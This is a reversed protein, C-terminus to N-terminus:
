QKNRVFRFGLYDNQVTPDNLDRDSSRVFEPYNLWDGGRSVRNSSKKDKTPNNM